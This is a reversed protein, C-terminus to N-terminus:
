RRSARPRNGRWWERIARRHGTEHTWAFERLWVTVPLAHGPDGLAPAPLRKLARVLGRRARDLRRRTAGFSARRAARVARANYRDADAMTEYWVMRHAQGRRILALRRAGEEEWAAIHTLVDQISWAGQTRSRRLVAEPLRALLALTAARSRDM